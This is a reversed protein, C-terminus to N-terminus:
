YPQLALQQQTYCLFDAAVLESLLLHWGFFCSCGFEGMKLELALQHSCCLSPQLLGCSEILLPIPCKTVNLLISGGERFKWFLWVSVGLIKTGVPLVQIGTSSRCPFELLVLSEQHLYSCLLRNRSV